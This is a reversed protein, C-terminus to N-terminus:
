EAYARRIHGDGMLWAIIACEELAPEPTGDTNATAALRLRHNYKFGDTRIFEGNFTRFKKNSGKIHRRIETDSWWLHDPTVETQWTKNGIQWVEMNDYHHVHTIPTWESRGTAPNYGITEDGIHVEDHKLWGRRTLIKTDLPVSM